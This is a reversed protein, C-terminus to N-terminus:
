KTYIEYTFILTFYKSVNNNYTHSAIPTLSSKLMNGNNDNSSNQQQSNAGQLQLLKNQVAPLSLVGSVDLKVANLNVNSHSPRSNGTIPGGVSGVVSGGSGTSKRYSRTAEYEEISDSADKISMIKLFKYALAAELDHKIRIHRLTDSKRDSRFGCKLCKYPKINLEAISVPLRDVGGAKTDVLEDRNQEEQEDNSLLHAHLSHVYSSPM